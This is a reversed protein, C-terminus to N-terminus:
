LKINLYKQKQMLGITVEKERFMVEFGRCMLRVCVATKKEEM